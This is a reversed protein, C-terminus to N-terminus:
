AVTIRRSLRSQLEPAAQRPLHLRFKFSGAVITLRVYRRWLFGAPLDIDSVCRWSFFLPRHFLRFMLQTEIYIGSSASVVNLCRSYSGLPTIWGSASRFATGAPKSTAAHRYALWRWGCCSIIFSVACWVCVGFLVFRVPSQLPDFHM